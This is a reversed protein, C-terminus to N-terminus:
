QDDVRCFYEQFDWQRAPVTYCGDEFVLERVLYEGRAQNFYKMRIKNNSLVQIDASIFNLHQPKQGAFYTTFSDQRIINVLKGYFNNRLVKREKEPIGKVKEMDALTKAENSQFTGVFFLKEQATSTACLALLLLLITFRM